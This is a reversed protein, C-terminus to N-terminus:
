FDDEIFDNIFHPLNERDYDNPFPYGNIFIAPTFNLGNELCWNYHTKYMQDTKENNEGYPYKSLWQEINKNDFWQKLTTKFVDEGQQFYLSALSRFLAKFETTENDIDVKIIVNIKLDNAHKQLIGDIIHHVNKCHGCLPTTIITIENKSIRNGLVIDSLPLMIKKGALLSNKFVGYNRLFRNAKLQFEKLEKQNTLLKKYVLWSLTSFLLVLAYLSLWNFSFSFKPYNILHLYLLQTLIIGIISLCIPCWKKEVIKQYYLSLAIIPISIYLLIKQLGFFVDSVGLLMFLYASLFQAVFFVLSLNSFSVWEFIKWKNSGIITNCGTSSTINCFSDILNSKVSFLHKLAAVSFLIGILSFIFFLMMHLSANFLWLSFLFDFLGLGGLLWFFPKKAPKPIPLQNNNEALLVVKQWRERLDELSIETTKDPGTYFYKNNNQEIFYFQEVFTAKNSIENLIVMFRNPLRELEDFGISLAANAVNFFTLTDAIALASPYNPHSQLQFLFENKDLLIDEAELYQFLCNHTIQM